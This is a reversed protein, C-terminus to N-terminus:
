FDEFYILIKAQNLGKISQQEEVKVIQSNIIWKLAEVKFFERDYWERLEM